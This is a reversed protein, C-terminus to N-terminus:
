QQNVCDWKKKQLIRVNELIKQFRQEVVVALLIFM